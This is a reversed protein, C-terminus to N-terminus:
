LSCYVRLHLPLKETGVPISPHSGSPIELWLCLKRFKKARQSGVWLIGQSKGHKVWGGVGGIGCDALLSHRRPLRDGAVLSM